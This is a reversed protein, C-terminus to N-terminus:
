DRSRNAFWRIMYFAVLLILSLVTWGFLEIPWLNHSTPDRFVDRAALFAWVAPPVVPIWALWKWKDRSTKTLTTSGLAAIGAPILFVVFTRAFGMDSM